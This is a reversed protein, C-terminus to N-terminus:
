VLVNRRTAKILTMFRIGCDSIRQDLLTKERFMNKVERIVPGVDKKKEEIIEMQTMNYSIDAGAVLLTRHFCSKGYVQQIYQM